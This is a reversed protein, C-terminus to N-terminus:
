RTALLRKKGILQKPIKIWEKINGTYNKMDICPFLAKLIHTIYAILEETSMGNWKQGPEHQKTM